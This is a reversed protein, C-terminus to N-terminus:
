EACTRGREVVPTREDIGAETTEVSEESVEWRRGDAERTREAPYARVVDVSDAVNVFTDMVGRGLDDMEICRRDADDNAAARSAAIM